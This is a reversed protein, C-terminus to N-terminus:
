RARRFGHDHAWLVAQTRDVVGMKRYAVRIRTKITNVSYYLQEAIEKNGLGEAILAIVEAERETLGERKGPWVRDTEPPEVDRGEPQDPATGTSRIRELAAVLAEGDQTKSLRLPWDAAEGDPLDAPHQWTYLVVAEATWGRGLLTSWHQGRTQAGFADYLAIDVCSDVDAQVSVDEVRVRDAYPELMHRLGEVVVDYDNLLALRIPAASM